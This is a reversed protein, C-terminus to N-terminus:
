AIPGTSGNDSQDHSAAPWGTEAVADIRGAVDVLDCNGGSLLVGVRKGRVPVRGFLIGALPVASSPEVPLKMRVWLWRLAILIEEESVTAIGAVDRRIVAFNREGLFRTRLGDAITDPIADLEVIRGERFSRSADDGREPEVGWVACPHSGGSAALATGALLGGGGVPTVLVDFPGADEILELAATGQGAIVPEYDYPPIVTLGREAAIRRGVMERERADCSVIEAGYAETAARKLPLTNTPMAVTVKVGLLRGALALGSAHNGSSYTLVGRQREAENLRRLSHYAGRFKFAGGRQLHEGKFLVTAGLRADLTRSGFIPTRNAADALLAAAARVGAYTLLEMRRIIRWARLQRLDGSYIRM